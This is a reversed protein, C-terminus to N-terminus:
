ELRVHSESAPEPDKAYPGELRLARCIGVTSGRGKEPISESDTSNRKM